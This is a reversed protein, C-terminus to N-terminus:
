GSEDPEVVSEDREWGENQLVMMEIAV